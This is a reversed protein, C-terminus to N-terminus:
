AAMRQEEPKYRRVLSRVGAEKLEYMEAVKKVPVGQQVLAYVDKKQEPHIKQQPYLGLEFAHLRNQYGDVWELNELRNDTKVGNIHNVMPVNRPNPIFAEAVLRHIYILRTKRDKTLSVRLYGTKMNDAPTMVKLKRGGKPLSYVVGHKTVAYLGEYGRVEEAGDAILAIEEM